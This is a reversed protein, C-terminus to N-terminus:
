LSKEILQQEIKQSITPDLDFIQLAGRCPIPQLARPNALVFGFPGEFWPSSSSTVCDVIDVLGIVASHPLNRASAIDLAVEAEIGRLQVFDFFEKDEAKQAAHIVVTGRMKTPWSRNEIPKWGQIVAHAWPQRITIAKFSV